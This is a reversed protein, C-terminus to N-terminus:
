TTKKNSIKINIKSSAWLILRSLVSTENENLRPYCGYFLDPCYVQRMRTRLHFLMSLLGGWLELIYVEISKFM